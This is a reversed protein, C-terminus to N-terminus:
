QQGRLRQEALGEFVGTAQRLLIAREEDDLDVWPEVGRDPDPAPEYSWYSEPLLCVATDGDVLARFRRFGVLHRYGQSSWDLAPPMKTTVVQAPAATVDSTWALNDVTV